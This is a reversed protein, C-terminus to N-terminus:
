TVKNHHDVLLDLAKGKSRDNLGGDGESGHLGLLSLYAESDQM